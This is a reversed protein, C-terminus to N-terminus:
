YRLREGGEGLGCGPRDDPGTIFGGASTTISAIVKGM